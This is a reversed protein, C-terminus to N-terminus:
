STVAGGLLRAREVDTAHLWECWAELRRVPIQREGTYWRSVTSQDVDLHDALAARSPPAGTWRSSDTRMEMLMSGIM